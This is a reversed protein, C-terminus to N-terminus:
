NMWNAITHAIEYPYQFLMAHGGNRWRVLKSDALTEHLIDSNKAPIIVDVGGSLILVPQKINKIQSAARTNQEWALVLEKQKQLVESPVNTQYYKSKFRYHSVAWSMQIRTSPPFLLQMGTFFKGLANQPLHTLRKIVSENPAISKPGAIVTNILILRKIYEPYEIAIQQAIMGGMSIGLLTINKLKLQKILTVTDAALAKISYDVSNNHSGSINRNNFIIVEHSRALELLFRKDWSSVDAAYGSIFVIPSGKGFKFYQIQGTNTQVLAPKLNAMSQLTLSTSSNLAYTFSGVTLLFLLCAVKIWRSM